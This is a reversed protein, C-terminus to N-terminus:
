IRGYQIKELGRKIVRVLRDLSAAALNALGGRNLLVRVGEVPNLDPAYSPLQFVRHNASSRMGPGAHM